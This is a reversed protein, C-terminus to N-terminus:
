KGFKVKAESVCNDKAVGAMADCKEKALAYAATAKDAAAEKRAEQTTERSEKNADRTQMQVKADAKATVELAKAEKVCVDKANGAKESCREKAMDYDGEAKALRAKYHNKETPQYNAELNAKAVNRGAKADVVCIDKANGSLADCQAKAAKYDDAVVQQGAKYEAKPLGQAMLTTSAVLGVALFISPLKFNPM